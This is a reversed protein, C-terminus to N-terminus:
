LLPTRSGASLSPARPILGNWECPGGPLVRAARRNNGPLDHLFDLFLRGYLRRWFDKVGRSTSTSCSRAFPSEFSSIAAWSTIESTVTRVCILWRRAFNCRALRTWAVRYARRSPIVERPSSFSHVTPIEQEVTTSSRNKFRQGPNVSM